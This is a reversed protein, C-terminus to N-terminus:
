LYLHIPIRRPTKNIRAPVPMIKNLMKTGPLTFMIRLMVTATIQKM